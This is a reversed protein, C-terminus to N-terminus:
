EGTWEDITVAGTSPNGSSLHTRLSPETIVDTVTNQIVGQNAVPGYLYMKATFNFTHTVFRRISFDGEYDDMVSVSNLIVPVNERYGIEPLADIVITYDPSFLPLIQEVITLGDETGKTLAYLSIELNYPVPTYVSKGVGVERRVIKNNRNVMREPDYSFSTIEFGMRPLVTYIHDNLNPDQETRVIAKEKPGYAIPVKVTQQEPTGANRVVRIGSFLSGFAIIVKKISGNYFPTNLFSSM